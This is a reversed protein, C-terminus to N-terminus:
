APRRELVHLWDETEGAAVRLATTPQYAALLPVWACGGRDFLSACHGKRCRELPMECLFCVKHRLPTKSM